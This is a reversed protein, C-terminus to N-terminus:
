KALSPSELVIEGSMLAKEYFYPQLGFNQRLLQVLMGRAIATFNNRQPDEHKCYFFVVSIPHTQRLRQSEEVIM